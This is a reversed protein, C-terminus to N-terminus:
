FLDQLILLSENPPDAPNYIDRTSKLFDSSTVTLNPKCQGHLFEMQMDNQPKIPVIHNKEGQTIQIDTIPSNFNLNANKDTVQVLLANEETPQILSASKLNQNIQHHYSKTKPRSFEWRKIKKGLRTKRM